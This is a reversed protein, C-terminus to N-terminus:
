QAPVWVERAAARAGDLTVEVHHRSTRGNNVRIRPVRAANVYLVGDRETRWRRDVSRHHLHGAIVALVTRGSRRAHAIAEALDPDGLDRRGRRLAFPAERDAGLGAPGNHALFVLPGESGDVLARLRRAADEITAAGGHPFSPRQGDMAHPRGVIVSIEGVRHASLGALEVPGLAERLAELRAAHRAQAGPRHRLRGVAEALVGLPTTADHNGPVLLARTRLKAIRRAVPLTGAHTRDGLDGTFLVLDYGMGDLIRADAEDWACHVDGIAAIRM